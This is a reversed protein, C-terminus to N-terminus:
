LQSLKQIRLAENLTLIHTVIGKNARYAIDEENRWQKYQNIQKITKRVTIKPDIPDPGGIKITTWFHPSWFDWSQEQYITKKKDRMRM